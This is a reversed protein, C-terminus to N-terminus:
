AGKGGLGNESYIFIGLEVVFWISCKGTIKDTILKDWCKIKKHFYCTKLTKQFRVYILNRQLGVFHKEATGKPIEWLLSYCYNIFLGLWLSVLSYVFCFECCRVAHFVAQQTRTDECKPYGVADTSWNHQSSPMIHNHKLCYITLFNHSM